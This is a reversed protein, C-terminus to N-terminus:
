KKGTFRSIAQKKEHITIENMNSATLRSKGFYNETFHSLLILYIRQSSHNQNHRRNNEVIILLIAHDKLPCDNRETIKKPNRKAANLVLLPRM